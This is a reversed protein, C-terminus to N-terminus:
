HDEVRMKRGTDADKCLGVKKDGWVGERCSPRRRHDKIAHYEHNTGLPGNLAQVWDRKRNTIKIRDRRHNLVGQNSTGGM